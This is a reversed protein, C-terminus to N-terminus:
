LAAGHIGAAAASRLRQPLGGAPSRDRRRDIAGGATAARRGSGSGIQNGIVAGLAAGLLTGGAVRPVAEAIRREDVRTEDWCERQPTSVRVRTTLPQM